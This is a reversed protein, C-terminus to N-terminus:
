REHNIPWTIHIRTGSGKISTVSFAGGSYEARERMSLLGAGGTRRSRKTAIEGPDFGVGHDVIDLEIKDDARSLHIVVTDAGAHKAVNNLAEQVIRFTILKLARGIDAEQAELQLDIAIGSYDQQFERCFWRLTALLGLDDLMSPRLDMSIRRVEEIAQQMRPIIAELHSLECDPTTKRLQILGNELSFKIASLTQGLGDHLDSAIRQREGEQATLVQSSLVRLEHESTKLAQEMLVRETVDTIVAFSGIRQGSHDHLLSPSILVWVRRGDRAHLTLEYSGVQGSERLAMNKKFKERNNKEVLEIAPRGVLEHREYGLMEATRKNLYTIVGKDDVAALGENMTEVLLRYEQQSEELAAEVRRRESVENRLRVYSHELQSTRTEIEFLLTDTLAKLARESAMLESVDDVVVVATRATTRGDAMMSAPQGHVQLNLHRQLHRDEAQCTAPEGKRLAESAHSWFAKLYCEEDKCNHHLLRHLDRGRVEAVSGLGWREVARNARIIHGRQDLLCVIQPLSDATAEWERKVQEIYGVIDDYCSVSPYGQIPAPQVSPEPEVEPPDPQARSQEPLKAPTPDRGNKQTPM